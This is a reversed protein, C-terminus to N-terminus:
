RRNSRWERGGLAYERAPAIGCRYASVGAALRTGTGLIRAADGDFSAIISGTLRPKPPIMM